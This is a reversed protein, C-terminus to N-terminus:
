EVHCVFWIFMAAQFRDSAHIVGQDNIGLCSHSRGKHSHSENLGVVHMGGWMRMCQCVVIHDYNAVSVLNNHALKHAFPTAHM